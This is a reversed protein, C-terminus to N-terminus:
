RAIARKIRRLTRQWRPTPRWNRRRLIAGRNAVLRQFLAYYAAGMNQDTHPYDPMKAQWATHQDLMTRLMVEFTETEFALGVSECYEPLGGSNRYLLPLGLLAAEIHHWGNAEHKAATIYVDHKRLEEFLAENHLPPRYGANTFTFGEPLRGIYTFEIAEAWAPEALMADLRQYIDWGKNPHTSWHHTVLRLRPSEHQGIGSQMMAGGNLIVDYHPSAFGVEAFRGHLWRSVFVSHDAVLRNAEVRFTNYTKAADDRAESSNNLRHVVLARHNRTRLYQDIHTHDYASISLNIDPEALLIVDIDDHDLDYVVSCGQAELYAALLKGFRNGGGWPEDRLKMGISIKM